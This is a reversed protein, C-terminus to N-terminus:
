KEVKDITNLFDEFKKYIIQNDFERFDTKLFFITFVENEIQKNYWYERDYENDVVQDILHYTLENIIINKHFNAWPEHEGFGEIKVEVLRPSFQFFAEQVKDLVRFKKAQKLLYEVELIEQPTYRYLEYLTM